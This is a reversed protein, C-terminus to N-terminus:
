HWDADQKRNAASAMYKAGLEKIDGGASGGAGKDGHKKAHEALSQARMRV